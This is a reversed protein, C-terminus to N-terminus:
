SSNRGTRDTRRSSSRRRSGTSTVPWPTHLGDGRSRRAGGPRHRDGPTPEHVPAAARLTRLCVLTSLALLLGAVPFPARVGGVDAAVGGLVAGVPMATLAVIRYAATVRGLLGAPVLTQRLSVTVVNWAASTAGIVTGALVAVALHPLVGPAALAAAQGLACGVVVAFFGVRPRLVPAAVTGLVGGVAFVAVLAGFGVPGLGLVQGAYLVLIAQAASLSANMACVLLCLTRLLRHRWLWRLGDTVAGRLSGAGGSVAFAGPVRAVLAAALAFAAANAALPVSPHLAFLVAGLPAGILAPTVAQASQLWANAPELTRTPVLMPVIASAASDFLTQATGLLFATAVLVAVTPPQTVLLAAVAGVLVARVADTRWMVRRRDLRDVLAGAFLGCLPWPAFGAAYVVAVARPDGTGTAALLPLAAFRIGDGLTSVTAATWLTWFRRGLGAPAATRSGTTPTPHM